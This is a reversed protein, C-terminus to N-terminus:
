IIMRPISLGTIFQADGIYNPIRLRRIRYPNMTAYNELGHLFTVGFTYGAQKLALEERKGFYDLKGSAPYCFADIKNDLRSEICTKSEQVENRLLENSVRSLIPHSKSHSGFEMGGSSMESIDNWDMIQNRGTGEPITVALKDMVTDFVTRHMDEARSRLYHIIIQRAKIREQRNTLPLIGLDFSNLDISTQETTNLSYSLREFPFLRDSGIFDTTIFFIARMNYKLLLPYAETFNDKYGDDFSIIIPRKPLTTSGDRYSKLDTFTIPTFYRQIFALQREFQPPTASINSTEFIFSDKDFDMVRHYALIPLDQRHTIRRLWLFFVPLRFRDLFRCIIRKKGKM